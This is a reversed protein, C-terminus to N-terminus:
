HFIGSTDLRKASNPPIRRGTSGDYRHVDSGCIGCAKVPVLVDDPGVAPEPMDIAELAQHEKLLQARM